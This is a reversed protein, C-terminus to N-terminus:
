VMATLILVPIYFKVRIQVEAGKVSHNWLQLLTVSAFKLQSKNQTNICIIFSSTGVNVEHGIHFPNYM